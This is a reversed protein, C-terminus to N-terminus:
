GDVGGIPRDGREDPIRAHELVTEAEGDVVPLTVTAVTGQGAATEFHIHGNRSSVLWNVLWLGIGSGHLLAEEEEGRLVADLEEDPIGPGWDVVEIAVHDAGVRATRVEVTPDDREAHAVANDLLERLIVMLTEPSVDVVCDPPDDVDVTAAPHDGCVDSVASDVATELGCTRGDTREGTILRQIRNAKDGIAMLGESTDRIRAVYTRMEDLTGAPIDDGDSELRDLKRDLADSFGQIVNLDNRLNHRLIRYLVSLQQERRKRETVDRIAGALHVVEGDEVVAEGTAEVRRENGTATVLRAEVAYPEGTEICREVAQRVTEQDDPHYFEIGDALDPDYDDDVGHIRRTGDTWTQANTEVDLEWGGVSALQETRSLRERSRELERVEARRALAAEVNRALIDIMERTGSDFSSVSTSGVHLQGYNGLPVMLLTELPTEPGSPIDLTQCGEVVTPEGSRFVAMETTGPTIRHLQADADADSDGALREAGDTAALPVLEDKQEDYSWIAVLDEDLVEEVIDVTVAAIAAEDDARWLRHSAENLAELREEHRKRETIDRGEPILLTVNGEDDRLPRVSFDVIAERDAGQVALEHRVFEGNEAREVARRARNRTEDSHQFLDVDWLKEGIVDAREVGSFELTTRNVEIVTGDPELLGTFQHTQDFIAEIRREREAQTQRDLEYRLWRGLLELFLRERDSLSGPPREDSVFVLRRDPGTAVDIRPGMSVAVPRDDDSNTECGEAPNTVTTSRDPADAQSWPFPFEAGPAFPEETASSYEVHLRDADPDVRAVLGVEHDFQECGLDLLAALTEEFSREGDAVVDTLRGLWRETEVSPTVDQAIWVVQSPEGDDSPIPAVSAEFSRRGDATSLDYTLTQAAGTELARHIAALFQEATRESYVDFVSRDLLSEPPPGHTWEVNDDGVVDRFQGDADLVFGPAPLARELGHLTADTSAGTM